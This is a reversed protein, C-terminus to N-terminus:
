GQEDMDDDLAPITGDPGEDDLHVHRERAKKRGVHRDLRQLPPKTSAEVPHQRARGALL